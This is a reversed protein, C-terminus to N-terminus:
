RVVVVCGGVVAASSDVDVCIYGGRCNSREGLEACRDVSGVM